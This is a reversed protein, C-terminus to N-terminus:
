EQNSIIRDPYLEEDIRQIGSMEEFTDTWYGGFKGQKKAKEYANLIIARASPNKLYTTPIINM